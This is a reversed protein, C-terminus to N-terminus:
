RTLVAAEQPDLDTLLDDIMRRRVLRRDVLGLDVLSDVIRVTAPPSRGIAQRLDEVTGRPQQGISALAAAAQGVRQSRGPVIEAVPQGDEGPHASEVRPGSGDRGWRCWLGSRSGRPGGPDPVPGPLPWDGRLRLAPGAAHM